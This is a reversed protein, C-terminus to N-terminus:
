HQVQHYLFYGNSKVPSKDVVQIQFVPQRPSYKDVYAGYSIKIETHM